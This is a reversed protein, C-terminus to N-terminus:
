INDLTFLWARMGCAWSPDKGLESWGARSLAEADIVGMCGNGGGGM